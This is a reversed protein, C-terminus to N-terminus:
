ITTTNYLNFLNVIVLIDGILSILAKNSLSNAIYTQWVIISKTYDDDCCSSPESKSCLMYRRFAQIRQKNRAVVIEWLIKIARLMDQYVGDSKSQPKN